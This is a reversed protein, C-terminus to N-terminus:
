VESIDINLYSAFRNSSFNILHLNGDDVSICFVCVQGMVNATQSTKAHTILEAAALLILFEKTKCIIAIKAHFNVCFAEHM